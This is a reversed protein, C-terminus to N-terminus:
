KLIKLFSSFFSKLTQFSFSNNDDSDNFRYSIKDSLFRETKRPIIFFLSTNKQELLEILACM